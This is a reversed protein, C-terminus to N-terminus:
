KDKTTVDKAFITIQLYRTGVTGGGHTALVDPEMEAGIDVMSAEKAIDQNLQDGELVKFKKNETGDEISLPLPIDDQGDSSTLLQERCKLYDKENVTVSFGVKQLKYKMKLDETVFYKEFIEQLSGDRYMGWLRDLNEVNKCSMILIISGKRVEKLMEFFFKVKDVSADHHAGRNM